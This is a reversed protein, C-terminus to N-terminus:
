CPTEREPRQAAEARAHVRGQGEAARRCNHSHVAVQKFLPV